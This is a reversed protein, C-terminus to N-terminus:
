GEQYQDPFSEVLKAIKAECEEKTAYGHSGGFMRWGGAGNNTKKVIRWIGSQNYQARLIEKIKATNEIHEVVGNCDPKGWKRKKNIELKQRTFAILNDASLGFHFASDLLLMFCDAFEEFAARCHLESDTYPTTKIGSAQFKEVAEILEKVEKSLHHLIAPNRQGEGFTKDSWESIDEM